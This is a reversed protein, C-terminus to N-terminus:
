MQHTSLIFVVLLAWWFLVEYKTSIQFNWLLIKEEKKRGMRKRGKKESYVLVDYERGEVRAGM